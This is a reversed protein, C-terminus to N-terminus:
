ASARPQIPATRTKSGDPLTTTIALRSEAANWKAGGDLKTVPYACMLADGLIARKETLTFPNGAGRQWTTGRADVYRLRTDPFLSRTDNRAVTHEVM